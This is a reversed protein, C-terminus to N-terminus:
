TKENYTKKNCDGDAANTNVNVEIKCTESDGGTMRGTFHEAIAPVLRESFGAIFGILMTGPVTMGDKAIDPLIWGEKVAAILVISFVVGVIIRAAVETRYFSKSAYGTFETKGYRQWISISAGMAGMYMGLMWDLFKMEEVIYGKLMVLALALVSLMVTIYGTAMLSCKRARETSISQYYTQAKDIFMDATEYSGDFAQALSCALMENLNERRKTEEEQEKGQEKGIHSYPMANISMARGICRLLQPPYDGKVYGDESYQLRGDRKNGYAIFAGTLRGHPKDRNSSCKYINTIDELHLFTCEEECHSPDIMKTNKHAKARVRIRFDEKLIWDM